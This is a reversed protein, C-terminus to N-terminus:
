NSAGCVVSQSAEIKLIRRAVGDVDREFRLQNGTATLFLWDGEPTTFICVCDVGAVDITYVLYKWKQINQFGLGNKFTRSTLEFKTNCRWQIIMWILKKQHTENNWLRRNWDTNSFTVSYWNMKKASMKMLFWPM